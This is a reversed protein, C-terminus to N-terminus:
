CIHMERKIKNTFCLRVEKEKEQTRGIWEMKHEGAHRAQKGRWIM